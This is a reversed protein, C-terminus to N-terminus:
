VIEFFFLSWNIGPMLSIRVIIQVGTTAAQLTEKSFEANFAADDDEEEEFEEDDGYNTPISELTTSSEEETYIVEV